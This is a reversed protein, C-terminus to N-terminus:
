HYYITIKVSYKQFNWYFFLMIRISNVHGISVVCFIGQCLPSIKYFLIIMIMVDGFKAAVKSTITMFEIM